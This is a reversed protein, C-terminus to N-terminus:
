RPTARAARGRTATATRARRPAVVGVGRVASSSAEADRREAPRATRSRRSAQSASAPADRVETDAGHSRGAAGCCRVPPEEVRAEREAGEARAGHQHREPTGWGGRELAELDEADIRLRGIRERARASRRACCRSRRRARVGLLAEAARAAEWPRPASLQRDRSRGRRAHRLCTEATAIPLEVCGNSQPCGYSARPYGHVADGGNFYNVWPVGPDNYHSGDVNTGIMTTAVYRVYIPFIGQQTDAGPVGTNAPTSLVVQRERPGRADRSDDRDGDGLHLPQPETGSRRPAWCRSGCTTHPVTRLPM